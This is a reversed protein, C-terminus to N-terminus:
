NTIKDNSNILEVLRFEGLNLLSQLSTFRKDETEPLGIETFEKYLRNKLTKKYILPWAVLFYLDMCGKNIVRDFSYLGRRAMAVFTNCYLKEKFTLNLTNLYDDFEYDVDQYFYTDLYEYDKQIINQNIYDRNIGVQFKGVRSDIQSQWERLSRLDKIGGPLNGGASAVHIPLGSVIYFWDIDHTRSYKSNM